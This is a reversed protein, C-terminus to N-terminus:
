KKGKLRSKPKPRGRAAVSAAARCKKIQEALMLIIDDTRLAYSALGENINAPEVGLQIFVAVTKRKGYEPFVDYTTSSIGDHMYTKWSKMRVIEGLSM